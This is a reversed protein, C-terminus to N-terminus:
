AIFTGVMNYNQCNLPENSIYLTGGRPDTQLYFHLNYKKCIKDIRETATKEKDQIKIRSPPYQGALHTVRYPINTEEDREILFTRNKDGIGCELEYWRHLALAARRLSRWETPTVISQVDLSM